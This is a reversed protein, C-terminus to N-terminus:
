HTKQGNELTKEADSVTGLVLDPGPSRTAPPSSALWDPHRADQHLERNVTLVHARETM